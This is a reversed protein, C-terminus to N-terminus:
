AMEITVPHFRGHVAGDEVARWATLRGAGIILWLRGDPVAM